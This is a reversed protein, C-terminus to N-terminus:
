GNVKYKTPLKEITDEGLSRTNIFITASGPKAGPVKPNHARRAVLSSWEAMKILLDEDIDTHVKEFVAAVNESILM